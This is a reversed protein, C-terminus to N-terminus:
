TPAAAPRAPWGAPPPLDLGQAHAAASDAADRKTEEEARMLAVREEEKRAEDLMLLYLDACADIAQMMLGKGINEEGMRFFTTEPEGPAFPTGYIHCRSLLRHFWARGNKHNLLRRVTEADERRRRAEDRRANNEAAPDAADYGARLGDDIM